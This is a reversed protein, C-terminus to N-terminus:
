DADCFALLKFSPDASLFLGQSPNSRLYRLVRLAPAFHPGRPQQMYQSIHHVSFSLDLRTHTLYNLKGLLRRYSTPVTLLEGTSFDLKSSPDLPSTVLTLHDNNFENLVEPTFKKQSVIM